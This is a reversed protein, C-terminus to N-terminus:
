KKNRWSDEGINSEENKKEEDEVQFENGHKLRCDRKRCGGRTAM